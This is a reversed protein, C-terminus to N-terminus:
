AVYEGPGLLKIISLSLDPFRVPDAKKQHTLFANLAPADPDAPLTAGHQRAIDVIRDWRKPTRVVRRLCAFKKAELFEAVVGNAAVMFDEILQTARNRTELELSNVQDGDFTARGQRSDFTLAGHLHRLNMLAQAAKDQLRLNEDLGKVAALAAPAPGGELWAAVGRYTLKAQNRVWARYVASDSVSGDAAVVMEVVVAPRDVGQCLSTIDTSLHEPLM